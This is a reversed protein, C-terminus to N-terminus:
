AAPPQVAPLRGTLLQYAMLVDGRLSNLPDEFTKPVNEEFALHSAWAPLYGLALGAALYAPKRQLLGVMGVTVGSLLGGAHVARTRPDAHAALYGPYFEEFTVRSM